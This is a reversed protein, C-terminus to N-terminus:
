FALGQRDVRMRIPAAGRAFRGVLLCDGLCDNVSIVSREVRGVRRLGHVVPIPLLQGLRARPVRNALDIELVGAGRTRNRNSRVFALRVDYESGFGLVTAEFPETRPTLSGVKQNM